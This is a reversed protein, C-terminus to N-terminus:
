IDWTCCLYHGQGATKCRRRYAEVPQRGWNRYGTWGPFCTRRGTRCSRQRRGAAGPRNNDAEVARNDVAVVPTDGAAAPSDGVVVRMDEQRTDAAVPNDAGALSDEVVPIGEEAQNDGPRTDAVAQSDEVVGPNDVAEAPIDAVVM